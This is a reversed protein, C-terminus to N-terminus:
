ARAPNLIIRVVTQFCHPQPAAEHLSKSRGPLKPARGLLRKSHVPPKPALRLLMQSRSAAGSCARAASDVTNPAGSRCQICKRLCKRAGKPAESHGQLCKRLGWRSWALAQPGESPVAPASRAPIAIEFSGVTNEVGFRLRSGAGFNLYISSRIM